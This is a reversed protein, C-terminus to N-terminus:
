RRCNQGASGAATTGTAADCAHDLRVSLPLFWVPVTMTLPMLRADDTVVLDVPRPADDPDGDESTQGKFGAIPRLTMSVHLAGDRRSLVRGVVDFRRAGDYVPVTFPGGQRLAGRIREFAALPDVVDRRLAEALLPRRSTDGPGREAVVAGDRAAFRMSIHSGRRRHLDYTTDYRQPQAARDPPLRGASHAVGRFHSVLHALGRTEIAIAADYRGDGDHTELRIEAAPLGAWWASYVAAFGDAAAPRVAATVLLAAIAYVPRKRAGMYFLM